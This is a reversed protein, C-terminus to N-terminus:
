PINQTEVNDSGSSNPEQVADTPEPTSDPVLSDINDPDFGEPLEPTFDSTEPTEFSKYELIAGGSVGFEYYAFSIGFTLAAIVLSFLIRHYINKRWPKNAFFSRYFVMIETLLTSAGTIVLSLVAFRFWFSDKGDSVFIWVAAMAIASVVVSGWAIPRSFFSLPQRVIFIFATAFMILSLSVVVTMRPQRMILAEPSRTLYVLLVASSILGLLVLGSIIYDKTTKSIPLSQTTM